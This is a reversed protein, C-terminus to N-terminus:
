SSLLLNTDLNSAIFKELYEDNFVSKKNEHKKKFVYTDNKKKVTWGKEIANTLFVLKQFKKKSVQIEDTIQM